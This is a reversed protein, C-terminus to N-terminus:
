RKPFLVELGRDDTYVCRNNHACGTVVIVEHNGGLRENVYRAYAEGRARRTPGQAMAACSSDFGSLPLIDVQSLLYTTPRGALQTRLQEDSFRATYGERNEFGYAWQNFRECGRGSGGPRFAPADPNVALSFGPASAELSWAADTPRDATPWAYSSPNSVVYRVPVGVEDHMVNSMAYRNTVQGGASHGTVVISALNPFLDRRAVHRLIEDLFDFSTADPHSPSPGGSRWTSCDYSIEDAALEDDCGGDNSAIRPAIVLADDLRGALFAAAIATRYYDDANRGAGHILVLAHTVDENRTDLPLNRYVMSRGSGVPIWGTCEATATTCPAAVGSAGAGGQAPGQALLPSPALVGLALVVPLRNNM